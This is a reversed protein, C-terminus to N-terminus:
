KKGYNRDKQPTSYDHELHLYWKMDPFKSIGSIVWHLFYVFYNRVPKDETSDVTTIMPLSWRLSSPTNRIWHPATPTPAVFRTEWGDLLLCGTIYIYIHIYMYIYIYIYTYIYIYCTMDVIVRMNWDHVVFFASVRRVERKSFQRLADMQLVQHKEMIFGMEKQPGGLDRM